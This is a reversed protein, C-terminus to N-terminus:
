GGKTKGSCSAQHRNPPIHQISIQARGRCVQHAVLVEALRSLWAKFVLSNYGGITSNGEVQFFHSSQMMALYTCHFTAHSKGQTNSRWRCLFLLVVSSVSKWALWVHWCDGHTNLEWPLQNKGQSNCNHQHSVSQTVLHDHKLINWTEQTTIACTKCAVAMCWLFKAATPYQWKSKLVHM